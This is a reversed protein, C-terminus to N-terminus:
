LRSLCLTLDGQREFFVKIARRQGGSFSNNGGGSIQIWQLLTADERKQNKTWQTKSLIKVADM